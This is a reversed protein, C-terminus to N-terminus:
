CTRWPVGDPEGGMCLPPKGCCNTLPGEGSGGPIDLGDDLAACCGPCMRRVLEFKTGGCM